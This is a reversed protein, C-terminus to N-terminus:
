QSKFMETEELPEEQMYLSVLSDYTGVNMKIIEEFRKTTFIDSHIILSLKEYYVRLHENEIHNNYNDSVTKSYGVPVRRQYHGVGIEESDLPLRARLPDALVYPDM